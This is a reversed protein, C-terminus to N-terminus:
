LRDGRGQVRIGAGLQGNLTIAVLAAGLFVVTREAFAARQGRTLGQGFHPKIRRPNAGEAVALVFRNIGAMVLGGPGLVPPVVKHQQM